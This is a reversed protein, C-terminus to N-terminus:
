ESLTMLIETYDKTSWEISFSLLDLLLSELRRMDRGTYYPLLDDNRFDSFQVGLEEYVKCGLIMCSMIIRKWNFHTFILDPQKEGLKQVYFVGLTVSTPVLDGSITLTLLFNFVTELTPKRKEHRDTDVLFSREDFLYYKSADRQSDDFTKESIKRWVFRASMRLLTELRPSVMNLLHRNFSHTRLDTPSDISNGRRFALRKPTPVGNSPPKTALIQKSHDEDQPRKAINM